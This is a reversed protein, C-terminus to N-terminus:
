TTGGAILLVGVLDLRLADNKTISIKKGTFACWGLMFAGAILFRLTGVVAAPFYRVAISIALYTSGWFLYVLGFSVGVRLRHAQEREIPSPIQTLAAM